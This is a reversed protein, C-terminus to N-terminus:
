TFYVMSYKFVFHGTHKLFHSYHARTSIFHLMLLAILTDLKEERKLRKIKINKKKNKLLSLDHVFILFLTITCNIM